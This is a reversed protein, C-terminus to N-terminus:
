HPPKLLLHRIFSDLNKTEEVFEELQSRDLRGNGKRKNMIQLGGNPRSTGPFLSHVLINRHECVKGTYDCVIKMKAQDCLERVKNIRRLAEFIEAFRADAMLAWISTLANTGFYRSIVSLMTDELHQFAAVCKGILVYDEDEISEKIKPLVKGKLLEQFKKGESSNKLKWSELLPWTM